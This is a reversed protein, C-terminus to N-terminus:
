NAPPFVLTSDEVLIVSQACFAGNFSKKIANYTLDSIGYWGKAKSQNFVVTVVLVGENSGINLSSSYSSVLTEANKVCNSEGIAALKTQWVKNTSSGNSFKVESSNGEKSCYGSWTVKNSSGDNQVLEWAVYLNYNAARNNGQLSLIATEGLQKLDTLTAKEHQSIVALTNQAVSGALSQIQYKLRFLTSMDVIMYLLIMGIPIFFALEMVAVGKSLSLKARIKSGLKSVAMKVQQM